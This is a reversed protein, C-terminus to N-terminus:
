KVQYYSDTRLFNQWDNGTNNECSEFEERSMQLTRYKASETVITFTRKSQNASVKITRGTITTYTTM